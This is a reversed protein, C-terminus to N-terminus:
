RINAIAAPNKGGNLYFGCGKGPLGAAVFAFYWANGVQRVEVCRFSSSGPILVPRRNSVIKFQYKKGSQVDFAGTTDSVAPAYAQEAGVTLILLRPGGNV